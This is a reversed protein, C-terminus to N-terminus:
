TDHRWASGRVSVITTTVAPVASRGTALSHAAVSSAYPNLGVRTVATPTAPTCRSSGSISVSAVASTTTTMAPMSPASADTTPPMALPGTTATGVLTPYPAASSPIVASSAMCADHAAPIVTTPMSLPNPAAHATARIQPRHGGGDGPEVAEGPDGAVHCEA